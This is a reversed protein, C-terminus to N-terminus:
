RVAFVFGDWEFGVHFLDWCGVVVVGVLLVYFYVVDEM